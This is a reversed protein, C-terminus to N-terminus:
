NFGIRVAGPNLTLVQIQWSAALLVSFNYPHSIRCKAWPVPQVPSPLASFCSLSQYANRLVVCCSAWGKRATHEFWRSLIVPAWSQPVGCFSADCHALEVSDPAVSPAVAAVPTAAWSTHTFLGAKGEGIERWHWGDSSRSLLWHVWFGWLCQFYAGKCHVAKSFLAPFLHSTM